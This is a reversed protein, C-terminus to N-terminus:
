ARRALLRFLPAWARLQLAWLALQARPVLKALAPLAEAFRERLYTWGPRAESMLRPAIDNFLRAARLFDAQNQLKPLLTGATAFLNDILLRRVRQDHDNAGLREFNFVHALQPHRAFINASHMRYVTLTRDIIASGTLANVGRALYVDFNSRLTRLAPNGMVLNLADRRFVFASMSAWPWDRRDPAVRHVAEAPVPHLAALSLATEGTDVPRLLDPARGGGERVYATLPAVTGRGLAQSLTQFMDSCTFGLPVRLSLHVFVHTALFDPLMVDDADLFTVYPARTAGFGEVSALSQGGNDPRRVVRMEPYRAALADIVAPSDDTSGNDVLLCAVRGYSQAFVSDVAAALYAGYNFNVIIVDVLPLTFAHSSPAHGSSAASAASLGEAPAGTM